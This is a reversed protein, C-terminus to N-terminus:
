QLMQDGATLDLVGRWHNPRKASGIGNPHERGRIAGGTSGAGCEDLPQALLKLVRRSVAPPDLEPNPSLGIRMGAPLQKVRGARIPHPGIRLQSGLCNEAADQQDRSRHHLRPKRPIGVPRAAPVDIDGAAHGVGVEAGLELVAAHEVALHVPVPTRDAQWTYRQAVVPVLALAECELDAGLTEAQRGHGGLELVFGVAQATRHM